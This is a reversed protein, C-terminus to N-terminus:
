ICDLEQETGSKGLNEKELGLYEVGTRQWTIWFFFDDILNKELLV